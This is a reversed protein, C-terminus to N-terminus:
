DNDARLPLMVSGGTNPYTRFMGPLDPMEKVIKNLPVDFIQASKSVFVFLTGDKLLHVFPYMYYPQNKVLIEMEVNVGCSVGKADLIEYTPNNNSFNYQNLGNLSGSAVFVTGDPLTQATAYWRKSALKNGPESWATQGGDAILYRIGDFGDGITLDDNFLPGNGGVSLIRGDALFVGGCCFPNTKVEVPTAIGTAPDFISSYAKRGNPLHLESRNEIKDLFMVTGDLLVAAHM